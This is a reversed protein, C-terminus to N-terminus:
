QLPTRGYRNYAELDAGYRVLTEVKATSGAIAAKHLPTNGSLDRANPDAGLRLEMITGDVDGNTSTTHLQTHPM